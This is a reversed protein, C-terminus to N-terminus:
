ANREDGRGQNRSEDAEDRDDVQRVHSPADGVGVGAISGTLADIPIPSQSTRRRAIARTATQSM